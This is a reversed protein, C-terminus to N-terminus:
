NSGADYYLTVVHRAEAFFLWREVAVGATGSLAGALTMTTGFLPPSGPLFMVLETLVLPVLFALAQATRRLRVAHKRAIRYGMERMVFNEQTHPAALLRVKQDPGGLGTATEPTAAAPAQDIHAWYLAKVIWAALVLAVTLHTIAPRDIAFLRALAALWLSGTALGLALYAPVTWRNAWAAITPLSAYIMGTCAITIFACVAGIIGTLAWLGDNQGWVVWGLAFGGTPLYTAVAVVGERSLWSTRWEGFARWAREPHGLHLTSAFLGLTVTVFALGFAALGFGRDAPILGTGGMLGLLVLLGYGLGSFTTFFIVSYAPHV